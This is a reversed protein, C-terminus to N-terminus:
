RVRVPQAPAVPRFSDPDATEWDARWSAPPHVLLEGPALWEYLEAYSRIENAAVKKRLMHTDLEAPDHVGMSAMMQMAQRVTAEQYRQVREAKDAVDLARARRPDQTAVGVPCQNTHCRQSQICGVAMMMARAANTFDAGQVLRKVIDTGTAVKGSAGLKIRDRLGTGVLANHVTMLGDTLPLGVHDEYELPAAATGGEAGDVVIFDPAAGEAIMAKCIALVDTRSGVCLKFGIPKGGSLERLRVVFRILERPTHFESHSPPSVCKEHAPVGRYRAIEESVKAAPLVGGLGPKAGQSLKVSIAKVQDYGAKEAFQDPDFRGDRTRTGFYASGIEWVLDAGGELHFPTLGGEGTDHAFGGRAAGINLARLANGSLAGFSMASINLLSMAYPQRCDPGGVLVRPPQEPEPLAAVSHVLFEYGVAEIDRETGYSLEGHIGKAREYIMTRVDRDFPRGDFNREIFYQQLEPRISELLYRMHGLLPYNRLISHRRQVLDYAGVLVLLGAGVALIWWAWSGIAAIVGLVVVAVALLGFLFFRTM